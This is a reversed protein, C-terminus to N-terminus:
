GQEQFREHAAERLKFLSGRVREMAAERRGELLDIELAALEGLLRAMDARFANQHADREDEPVQELNSPAMPKATLAYVQMTTVAELTLETQTPDSLTTAVTKLNNRLEKMCDFLSPGAQPTAAASAAPIANGLVLTALVTAALAFATRQPTSRASRPTHM